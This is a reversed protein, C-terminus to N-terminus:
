ACDQWKPRHIPERHLLAVWPVRLAEGVIVVDPMARLIATLFLRAPREDEAVVV